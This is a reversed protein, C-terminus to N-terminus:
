LMLEWTPMNWSEIDVDIMWSPTLSFSFLYRGMLEFLADIKNQIKRDFNSKRQSLKEIQFRTAIVFNDFKKQRRRPIREVCGSAM